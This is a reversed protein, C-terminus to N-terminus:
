IATDRVAEQLATLLADENPRLAIRLGAPNTARLPAIAAESIAILHSRSLAVGTAAVARAAKASHLLVFSPSPAALIAQAQASLAPAADTRYAAAFRADFGAEQLAPVLRGAPTTNAIHLIAGTIRDRGAFVLRTLDNVDGDADEVRTFGADRAAAATGPGVSWVTLGAPDQGARLFARVGNASSFILDTVGDLAEPALGTEVIELMPSLVPQFGLSVLRAATEDAGPQTRTIIVPLPRRATM